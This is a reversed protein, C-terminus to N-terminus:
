FLRRHPAVTLNQNAETEFREIKPSRSVCEKLYKSHDFRTALAELMLWDYRKQRQSLLGNNM